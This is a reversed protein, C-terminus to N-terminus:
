VLHFSYWSYKRPTFAVPAYPQCDQWRWTSITKIDQLRFWRPSEHGEWNQVPTACRLKVYSVHLVSSFETNTV